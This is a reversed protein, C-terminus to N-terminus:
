DKLQELYKLLGVPQETQLLSEPLQKEFPVGLAGTYSDFVHNVLGDKSENAIISILHSRLYVKSDIFLGNIEIITDALWKVSSLLPKVATNYQNHTTFLFQSIKDQMDAEDESRHPCGSFVQQDHSIGGPNPLLRVLMRTYDFIESESSSSPRALSTVLADKVITCGIDYAVFMIARKQLINYALVRQIRLHTEFRSKM